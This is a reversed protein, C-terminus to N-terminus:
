FRDPNIPAIKATILCTIRPNEPDLKANRPSLTVANVHAIVSLGLPTMTVFAAITHVSSHMATSM